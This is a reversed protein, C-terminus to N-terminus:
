PAGFEEAAPDAPRPHYAPATTSPPSPAPPPPAPIPARTPAATPPRASRRRARQQRTPPSRRHRAARRPRKARPPAKTQRQPTASDTRKPRRARSPEPAATGRLSEPHAAPLPPDAPALHPWALVLAVLAPVALVRALNAWRIRQLFPAPPPTVGSM